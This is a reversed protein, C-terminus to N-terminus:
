VLDLRSLHDLEATLRTEFRMAERRSAVHLPSTVGFRTRLESLRELSAFAAQQNLPLMRRTFEEELESLICSQIPEWSEPIVALIKALEQLLPLRRAREWDLLRIEGEVVIMNGVSLDGHGLCWPIMAEPEKSMELLGNRLVHRAPWSSPWDIGKTMVDFGEVLSVLDHSEASSRWQFGSKRYGRWLDGLVFAVVEGAHAVPDPHTGVLWEECLHPHDGEFRKGLIAPASMGTFGTRADVDRQM